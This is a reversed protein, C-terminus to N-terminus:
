YWRLFDLDVRNSEEPQEMNLMHRTAPVVAKRNTTIGAALLEAQALVEDDDREGVIILTPAQIETLRQIAGPVLPRQLGLSFYYVLSYEGLLECYQQCAAPYEQVQPMM